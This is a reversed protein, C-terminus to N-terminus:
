FFHLLRNRTYMARFAVAKLTVIIDILSKLTINLVIQQIKNIKM